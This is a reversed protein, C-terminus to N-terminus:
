GLAFQMQSNRYTCNFICFFQEMCNRGKTCIKKSHQSCGFNKVPRKEIKSQERNHELNEGISLSKGLWKVAKNWFHISYFVQYWRSSIFICDTGVLVLYISSAMATCKKFSTFKGNSLCIRSYINYRGFRDETEMNITFYYLYSCHLKKRAARGKFPSEEASVLEPKNIQHCTRHERTLATICRIQKHISPPCYVVQTCIALFKSGGSVCGWLWLCWEDSFVPRIYVTLRKERTCGSYFLTGFLSYLPIDFKQVKENPKKM